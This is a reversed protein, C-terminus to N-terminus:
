LIEALVVLLLENVIQLFSSNFLLVIGTAAVFSSCVINLEHNVLDGLFYTAVIVWEILTNFPVIAPHV